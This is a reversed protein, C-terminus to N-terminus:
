RDEPQRPHKRRLYDGFLPATYAYEGHRVRYILNNQVLRLLSQQVANPKLTEFAQQLTNVRFSEGGLSASLEAALDAVLRSGGGPGAAKEASKKMQGWIAKGGARAAAEIAADSVASRDRARAPLGIIDSITEFLGTEWVFYVPYIGNHRWFGNRALVGRLGDKEAILGGHAVVIIRIGDPRVSTARRRGGACTITRRQANRTREM